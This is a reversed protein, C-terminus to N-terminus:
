ETTAIAIKKENTINIAFYAIYIRKLFHRVFYKSTKPAHKTFTRKLVMNRLKVIKKRM